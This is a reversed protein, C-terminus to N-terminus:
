QGAAYPNRMVVAQGDDRGYALFQDDPSFAVSWVGVGPNYNQLLQGAKVDWIGVEGHAGGNEWTGTALLKGDKSFSLSHIRWRHGTLRRLLTADAVRWFWVENTATSPSTALLQGDPSFAVVESQHGDITWLLQGDSVRWLRTGRPSTALGRGDGHSTALLRGDPSFALYLDKGQQGADLTNLLEGDTMRWLRLKGNKDATAFIQGDPSYAVQDAADPIRNLLAGDGVRWILATGVFGAAALFQSDPSFAVSLLAEGGDLTRLLEGDSTRRLQINETGVAVMQGDPSFAIVAQEPSRESQKWLIDLEAARAAHVHLGGLLFFGLLASCGCILRHYGCGRDSM